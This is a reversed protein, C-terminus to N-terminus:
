SESCCTMFLSANHSMKLSYPPLAQRHCATLVIFRPQSELSTAWCQCLTPCSLCKMQFIRFTHKHHSQLHTLQPYIKRPQSGSSGYTLYTFTLLFKTNDNFSHIFISSSFLYKLWSGSFLSLLQQITLKTLNKLLILLKLRLLCHALPDIPLSSLFPFTDASPTSM